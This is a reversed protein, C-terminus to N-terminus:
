LGRGYAKRDDSRSSLLVMTNGVIRRQADVRACRCSLVFLAFPWCSSRSEGKRGVGLQLYSRLYPALSALSVERIKIGMSLHEAWIM